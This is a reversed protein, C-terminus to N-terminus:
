DCVDCLFKVLNSMLVCSCNCGSHCLLLLPAALFFCAAFCCCLAEGLPHLCFVHGFIHFMLVRNPQRQIASWSLSRIEGDVIDVLLITRVEFESYPCPSRPNKSESGSCSRRAVLQIDYRASRSHFGLCFGIKLQQLSLDCGRRTILCRSCQPAWM